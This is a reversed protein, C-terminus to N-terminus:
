DRRWSRVANVTYEPAGPPQNAIADFHDDYAWDRPPAGFAQSSFNTPTWTFVSRHGNLFSGRVVHDGTGQEIHRLFNHMGGGHPTGNPETVAWGGLVALNYTTDTMSREHLTYGRHTRQPM